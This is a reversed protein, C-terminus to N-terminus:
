SLFDELRQALETENKVPIGRELASQDADPLSSVPCPYIQLPAEKDTDMLALYGKHCGLYLGLIIMRAFLQKM